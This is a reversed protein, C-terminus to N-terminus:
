APSFITTISIALLIPYTTKISHSFYVSKHNDSATYQFGYYISTKESSLIKAQKVEKCSDHVSSGFNFSFVENNRTLTIKFINRKQKDDDFHYDFKLFDAKFITNTKELFDLAQKEYENM